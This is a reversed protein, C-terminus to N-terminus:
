RMVITASIADPIIRDLARRRNPIPSASHHPNWTGASRCQNLKACLETPNAPRKDPSKELCQLIIAELDADVPSGLKVSPNEPIDFVQSRLIAAVTTSPFITQGTLLYYGIAGISYLDGRADLTQPATIAEPSMYCPTGSIGTATKDFATSDSIVTAVGFDLVKVTDPIGGRNCIMINEPKLDRHILGVAHAEKLSACAQILFHIVRSAPLPGQTRVLEALTVGELYEMAYYFLGEPTVGYDYVAVTHPSTLQSTLQVESEFMALAAPSITSTQLVKIAARRKLMCHRALYIVGMAGQGIQSELIYSGVQRLQQVRDVRRQELSEEAMSALQDHLSNAHKQYLEVGLLEQDVEGAVDLFSFDPLENQLALLTEFSSASEWLSGPLCATAVSTGVTSERLAASALVAEEDHHMLVCAVLEAPFGWDHMVLAGVQAHNWGFRRNEEQYLNVEPQLAEVYDDYYAETLLPLLFDQLLGSLYAIEVDIGLQRAMQQAFFAKMRNAKQFQASNVLRSFVTSSASQLATTLVLTKTRRSGLLNVAQRVSTVQQRVGVATSNVQRLLGSTLAADVEIPAALEKPGAEPDKSIATFEIVSQPICPLRFNRPLELQPRVAVAADVIENWHSPM